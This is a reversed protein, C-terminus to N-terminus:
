VKLFMADEDVLRSTDVIIQNDVRQIEFRDLPRPAPGSLVHGLRDFTSGHCPCSIPERADTVIGPTKWGVLCGLHTCVASLAYFLGNTDRIIFCRYDERFLVSGTQFQDIRGARFRPPIEHLVNPHYFQYSVAVAGAGTLGLAVHGAKVLFDRRNLKCVSEPQEKDSENHNM